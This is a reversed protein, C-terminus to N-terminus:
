RSPRTETETGGWVSLCVCVCLQCDTMCFQLPQRQQMCRRCHLLQQGQGQGQQQGQQQQMNADILILIKCAIRTTTARSQRGSMSAGGGQLTALRSLLNIFYRWPASLRVLWLHLSLASPPTAAAVLFHMYAHIKVFQQHFHRMM